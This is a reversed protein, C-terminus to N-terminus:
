AFSRDKAARLGKAMWLTEPEAKHPRQISGSCPRSPTLEPLCSSTCNWCIKLVHPLIFVSGQQQSRSVKHKSRMSRGLDPNHSVQAVIAMAFPHPHPWSTLANQQSPKADVNCNYDCPVPPALLKSRFHGICGIPISQKAHRWATWDPDAWTNFSKWGIRAKNTEPNLSSVLVGLCVWAPDFLINEDQKNKTTTGQLWHTWALAAENM